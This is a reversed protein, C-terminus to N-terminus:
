EIVALDDNTAVSAGKTVSIQTVIGDKNATIENEMKMAELIFLIDGKKVRTGKTVRIDLITGPMPAKLAEGSGTKQQTKVESASTQERKSNAEETNVITAQGREVEVEYRKENLTVIYKM